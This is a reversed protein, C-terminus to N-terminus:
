RFKHVFLIRCTSFIDVLESFLVLFLVDAIVNDNKIVTLWFAFSQPKQHLSKEASIVSLGDVKNGPLKRRTGQSSDLGPPPPVGM